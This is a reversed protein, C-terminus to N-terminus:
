KPLSFDKQECQLHISWKGSVIEQIEFLILLVILFCEIQFGLLDIQHLSALLVNNNLTSYSLRAAHCFPGGM